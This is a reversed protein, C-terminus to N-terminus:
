DWNYVKNSAINKIKSSLIYTNYQSPWGKWSVLSPLGRKKIVNNFKFNYTNYDILSIQLERSQFWGNLVQNAQDRLKYFCIGETKKRNIVTFYEFSFNQHWGRHFTSRIMSVVVVDNEKYLYKKM